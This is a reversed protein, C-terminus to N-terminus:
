RLYPFGKNRKTKRDHHKVCNVKFQNDDSQVCSDKPPQEPNISTFAEKTYSSHPDSTGFRKNLVPLHLRPLKVAKWQRVRQFQNALPLYITLCPNWLGKDSSCSLITSTSWSSFDVTQKKRKYLFTFLSFIIAYFIVIFKQPHRQDTWNKGHHFQM